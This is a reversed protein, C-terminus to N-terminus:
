NNLNINDFFKQKGVSVICLNNLKDNPSILLALNGLSDTYVFWQNNEGDIWHEELKGGVKNIVVQRENCYVKLARTAYTNTENAFSLNFFTSYIILAIFKLKCFKINM